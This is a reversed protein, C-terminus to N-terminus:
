VGAGPCGVELEAGGFWLQQTGAERAQEEGTEGPGPFPSHM